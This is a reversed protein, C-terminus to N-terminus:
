EADAGIGVNVNLDSHSVDASLHHQAACAHIFHSKFEHVGVELAPVPQPLQEYVGKRVSRLRPAAFPGAVAVLLM